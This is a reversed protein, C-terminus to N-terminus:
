VRERCSARGIKSPHVKTRDRMIEVFRLVRPMIGRDRIFRSEKKRGQPTLGIGAGNRANGVMDVGHIQFCHVEEHFRKSM